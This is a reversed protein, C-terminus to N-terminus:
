VELTLCTPTYIPSAMAVSIDVESKYLSILQEELLVTPSALLKQNVRPM